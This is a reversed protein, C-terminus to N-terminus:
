RVLHQRMRYRLFEGLRPNDFESNPQASVKRRPLEVGADLNKLAEAQLQSIRVMGKWSLTMFSDGKEVPIREQAVVDGTDVGSDIMFVTCGVDEPKQFYVAWFASHSGRYAPTLGPHGGLVIGKRPLDRVKKGVWYPTHVVLVDANREKLWALTQPNSYDDTRHTRDQWPGLTGDIEQHNFIREYAARDQRANLASYVLRALARSTTPWIGKREISKWLYKLPLGAKRQDAMCIGVVNLGARILTACTNLHTLRPGCLIVIRNRENNSLMDSM